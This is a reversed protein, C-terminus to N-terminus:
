KHLTVLQSPNSQSLCYGIANEMLITEKTNINYYTVTDSEQFFILDQVLTLFKVPSSLNVTRTDFSFLDVLSLTMSNVVEIYRDSCDSSIVLQSSTCLILDFTKLSWVKM